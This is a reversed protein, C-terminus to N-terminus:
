SRAASDGGCAPSSSATIEATTSVKRGRKGVSSLSGTAQGAAAATPRINTINRAARRQKDTVIYYNILFALRNEDTTCASGKEM